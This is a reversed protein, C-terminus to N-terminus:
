PGQTASLHPSVGRDVEGYTVLHAGVSTDDEAALLSSDSLSCVSLPTFNAHAEEHTARVVENVWCRSQIPRVVDIV